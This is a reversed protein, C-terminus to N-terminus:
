EADYASFCVLPSSNDYGTDEAGDRAHSEVPRLSAEVELARPRTTCGAMVRLLTKSKGAGNHGMLGYPDGSRLDLSIDDLAKVIIPKEM